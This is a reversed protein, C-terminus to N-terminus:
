FLRKKTTKSIKFNNKKYFNIGITNSNNTDVTVVGKVDTLVFDILSSGLNM